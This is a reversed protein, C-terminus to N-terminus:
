KSSVIVTCLEDNRFYESIHTTFDIIPCKLFANTLDVGSDSVCM